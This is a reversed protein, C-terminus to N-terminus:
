PRSINDSILFPVTTFEMRILIRYINLMAGERNSENILSQAKSM